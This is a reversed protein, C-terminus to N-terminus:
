PRVGIMDPAPAPAPATRAIAVPCDAHHILQLGVSGLLLGLAPGHGRSGVVVLQAHRSCATLVASPSGTGVVYEVPVDPYKDRWGAVHGVLATELEGRIRTTDYGMPPPGITWPPPMSVNYALAAMLACGRRAAEEFAVGTAFAASPSGDVGVVVPDTDNGDRGRVVVTVPCSARTAVHGTVSGALLGAFGGGGRSGVVLMDAEDSAELLVPAPEGFVAAGHVRARPAVTRAEAVAADVISMALDRIYEEFEHDALLRAIPTRWSYALLVALEVHRRQAELAAWGLANVSPPSGDVGVVIKATPLPADPGTLRRHVSM